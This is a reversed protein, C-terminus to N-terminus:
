AFIAKDANRTRTRARAGTLAVLGMAGMVLASGFAPEPVLIPVQVVPAMVLNSRIVAGEVSVVDLETAANSTITLIGLHRNGAGPTGLDLANIAVRGPTLSVKFPLGGGSSDFSTDGVFDNFEFPGSHTLVLNFGCIENGNAGAACPAPTSINGGGALWVHVPTPVEQVIGIPGGRGRDEPGYTLYVDAPIQASAAAASLLFGIGAVLWIGRRCKTM